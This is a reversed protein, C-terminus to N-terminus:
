IKVSKRFNRIYHKAVKKLINKSQKKLSAEDLNMDEKMPKGSAKRGLKHAGNETPHSSYFKGDVFVHYKDEGPESKHDVKKVEYGEKIKDKARSIGNSRKYYDVINKNKNDYNTSKGSDTAAKNKAVVAKQVYDKLREKSIESLEDEKLRKKADDIGMSRKGMTNNAAAKKKPNDYDDRAKNWSSKAKGLYNKLRDKSIEQMNEVSESRYRKNAGTAGVKARTNDGQLKETATNWNAHRQEAKKTKGKKILKGLSKAAKDRYADLYDVSVEQVDEVSEAVANGAKKKLHAHFNRALSAGNNSGRYGVKKAHDHLSSITDHKLSFFDKNPGEHKSLIHAAGTASLGETISSKIYDITQERMPTQGNSQNYIDVDAGNKYSARKSMDKKTQVDFNNPKFPYDTKKIKHIARVLKDLQSRPGEVESIFDSLKKM